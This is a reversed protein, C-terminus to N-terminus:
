PHLLQTHYWPQRSPQYGRADKKGQAYETACSLRWWGESSPQGLLRLAAGLGRRFYTNVVEKSLRVTPKGSGARGLKAGELWRSPLTHLLVGSLGM